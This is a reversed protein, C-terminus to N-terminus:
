RQWIAAEGHLYDLFRSTLEGIWSRRSPRARETREKSSGFASCSIRSSRGSCAISKQSVLWKWQFEWRNTIKSTASNRSLRQASHWQQPSFSVTPRLWLDSRQRTSNSFRYTFLKSFAFNPSSRYKPEECGYSASTRQTPQARQDASNRM